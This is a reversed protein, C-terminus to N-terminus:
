FSILIELNMWFNMQKKYNNYTVIAGFQEFQRSCLGGTLHKYSYPMEM